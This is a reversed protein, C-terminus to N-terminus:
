KTQFHYLKLNKFTLKGYISSSVFAFLSPSDEQALTFCEFCKCITKSLEIQCFTMKLTNLYIKKIRIKKM